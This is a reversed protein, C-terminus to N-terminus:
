RIIRVAEFAEACATGAAAGRYRALSEIAECSRPHPFEKLESGYCRVAEMKKKITATIDEFVNPSFTAPFNWETSSPTEFSYIERAKEEGQPRFATLVARYTVAHDLNLDNKHHTYVIDPSIGAKVKEVAKVIDLLAATDFRNDPFDHMFIKKVGILANARSASDKLRGIDRGRKKRSRVRDRSTIGEGLIMAYVSYGEEVRKAITGGCGLVEDDPHAAVVLIRKDDKAM